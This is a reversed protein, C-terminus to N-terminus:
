QAVVMSQPLSPAFRSLAQNLLSVQE